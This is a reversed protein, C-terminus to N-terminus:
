NCTTLVLMFLFLSAVPALLHVHVAYLLATSSVVTLLNEWVLLALGTVYLKLMLHSVKTYM